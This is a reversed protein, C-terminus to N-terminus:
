ANSGKFYTRQVKGDGIYMSARTLVQHMKHVNNERLTGYVFIFRDPHRSMSRHQLLFLLKEKKNKLTTFYLFLHKVHFM